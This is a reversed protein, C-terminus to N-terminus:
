PKLVVSAAHKCLTIDGKITKDNMFAQGTKEQNKKMRAQYQQAIAKVVGLVSDGYDTPKGGKQEARVEMAAVALASSEKEISERQAPDLSAGAFQLIGVYLGACRMPVYAPDQKSAPLRTYQQLPPSLPDAAMAPALFAISLAFAAALARGMM